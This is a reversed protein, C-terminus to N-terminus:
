RRIVIFGRLSVGNQSKIIYFYTDEELPKNNFDVGNWTNDYNVNKYVEAGRRDFILLETQGLTQLGKIIFYDNRGDMNPTILSPVVLDSVIVNMTDSVATCAEGKVTWILSNVGKSLESVSTKPDTQDLFSGSGSSVSWIGTENPSLMADLFTNTQSYIEQDIGANPVPPQDVTVNVPKINSYGSSSTSKIYYTGATSYSPSVYSITAGADKWYTFTLNQDSGETIVAATIDVTSPYCVPAPDTIVLTPVGSASITVPVSGSSKCGAANTVSFTFIGGPLNAITNSIGTGSTIVAGPIRTITWAGSSPLGNLIVSGTPVALTPQTITGIVPATPAAPVTPIIVNASPVSLCGDASTVTYNYTGSQL